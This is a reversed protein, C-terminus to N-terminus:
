FFQLNRINYLNDASNLLFNRLRSYKQFERGGYIGKRWLFFQLAVM